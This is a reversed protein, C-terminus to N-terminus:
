RGTDDLFLAYAGAPLPLWERGVETRPISTGVLLKVGAGRFLDLV